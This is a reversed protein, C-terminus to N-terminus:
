DWSILAAEGDGVGDGVELGWPQLADDPHVGLLEVHLWLRLRAPAEPACAALLALSNPLTPGRRSGALRLDVM